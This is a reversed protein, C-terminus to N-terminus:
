FSIQVYIFPIHVLKNIAINNTIFFYLDFGSLMTPEFNQM